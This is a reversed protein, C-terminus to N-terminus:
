GAPLKRIQGALRALLAKTTEDHYRGSWADREDEVLTAARELAERVTAAAYTEGVRRTQPRLSAM